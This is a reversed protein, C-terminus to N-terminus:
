FPPANDHQLTIKLLSLLKKLTLSNAHSPEQCMSPDRHGQGESDGQLQQLVHM